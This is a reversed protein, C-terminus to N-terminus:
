ESNGHGNGLSLAIADIIANAGKPLGAEGGIRQALEMASKSFSEREFGLKADIRRSLEPITKWTSFAEISVSISFLGRATPEILAKGKDGSASAEGKMEVRLRGEELWITRSKLYGGNIVVAGPRDKSPSVRSAAYEETAESVREGIVFVLAALQGGSPSRESGAAEASTQMRPLCALTSRAWALDEASSIPKSMERSRGLAVLTFEKLSSTM